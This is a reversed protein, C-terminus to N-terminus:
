FEPVDTFIQTTAPNLVKTETVAHFFDSISGQFYFFAYGGTLCAVFVLLIDRVIEKLPKTVAGQDKYAVYKYEIFKSICYVATIMVSLVFVQEM